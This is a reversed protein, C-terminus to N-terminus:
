KVKRVSWGGGSIASSAGNPMMGAKSKARSLGGKIIGQFEKAAKTFEEESQAADMRAIANGAKTGEIDTIAGAGKLGEYAQLFQKGKLQELRTDFDYADTGPIRQVQLMRSGGVAQKFGPASLLDDILKISNEAEATVSPLTSQAKIKNEAAMEASAKQAALEAATPVKIGGLPRQGTMNAIEKDLEPNRGIGGENQREQLLIQLRTNDRQKQVNPPIQMSQPTAQNPAGQPLMPTNRPLGQFPMPQGGYAQQAVQADTSIVGPIDTNPKYSAGAQAEAAKVAGRVEPSDASKVVPNGNADQVMVFQGSRNNFSGLGGSTAIPTFYPDASSSALNPYAAKIALKPDLEVAEGYEPFKVKFAELAKQQRDYEQQKRAYEKMQQDQLKQEAGFRKNQQTQQMGQQIGRSLVQGTNKTNNNALIGLGVNFLANDGSLLGGIRDQWGQQPIGYSEGPMLGMQGDNFIPM